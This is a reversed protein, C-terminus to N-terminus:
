KILLMKKQLAKGAAQLRYFYVGSSVANGSNDRGNWVVNHTGATQNDNVLQRVKQGRINYITLNVPGNQALTYNITTTPNFPNPYNQGLQTDYDAPADQDQERFSVYHLYNGDGFDLNSKYYQEAFGPKVAYSSVRKAAREDGYHMVFEVTATAFDIDEGMIYAPIMVLSDEVVAAGKCIGNIYLGIEVPAESKSSSLTAFVPLYNSQEEYTFTNASKYIKPDLEHSNDGGLSFTVVPANNAANNPYHVMVMDGYNIRWETAVPDNIDKSPNTTGSGSPKNWKGTLPNKVTTWNKAKIEDIYDLVPAFADWPSMSKPLYYGVWNYHLEADTAQHDFQATNPRLAIESNAPMLQGSPSLTQNPATSTLQLKYGQRSDLVSGSNTWYPYDGDQDPNYLIQKSSNEGDCWYFDSLM